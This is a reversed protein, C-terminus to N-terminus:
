VLEHPRLERVIEAPQAHPVPAEPLRDYHHLIRMRYFIALTDLVINRIDGWRVRGFKRRFELTVPADVIKYGLRHINALLEIDFAFRKVLIRPLVRRLVEARFVKLGTQTDRVPLGFLARIMLYYVASYLRRERPYNVQSLPHWKSGIVVDAKALTMTELLVPLQIPHLDMDSDLFAIYDGTAVQAGCILANGKGHNQDCRLVRVRAPHSVLLKAAELYTHDHSGDDVVIVEFDYEASVLTDVTELLNSVIHEAENYAPMVVSIKLNAPAAGKGNVPATVNEAM